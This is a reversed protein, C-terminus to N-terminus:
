FPIDEINDTNHHVGGMVPTVAALHEQLTLHPFTTCSEYGRYRGWHRAAMIDHLFRQPTTYADGIPMIAGFMIYDNSNSLATINVNFDIDQLGISGRVAIEVDHGFRKQLAKIEKILRNGRM